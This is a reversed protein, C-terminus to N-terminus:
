PHSDGGGLTFFNDEVGVRELRLVQAWIDALVQEAPTRPAVYAGELAPREPGPAPLARRDVKGSPTRPLAAVAVFASPVLYDPLREQLFRRLKTVGPGPGQAPLVYAVLYRGGPSDERATVVAESVGPHERLAAEVEGPEIRFGRLKVQQDVRGLYELDGDPRRRARDGSRYMRAGTDADFPNPLFREATLDPRGLYGRALGAGGVYLEGPVGVPVPHLHKDLLYLRLDPLAVGLPSGADGLDAASLPRYSAHVTTETIGYMNVLRPPRAGPRDLWPRLRQPELAEGGFVVLRLDPPPGAAAGAALLQYFASPTQNLVTVGRARLLADFALPSRSVEYPVVVLCGGNLLAGWLEWVSFDFAYSHFMTWVDRPGFQFWPQTTALLRAVNEHSVLVGKPQGTSGSTYLVYALNAPRAGNM